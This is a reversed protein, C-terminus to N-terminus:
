KKADSNNAKSADLFEVPSFDDTLVRMARVRETPIAIHERRVAALDLRGRFVPNALTEAAPWKSPDTIM